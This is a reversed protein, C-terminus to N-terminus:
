AIGNIQCCSARLSFYSWLSKSYYGSIVDARWCFFVANESSYCVFCFYIETNRQCDRNKNTGKCRILGNLIIDVMIAIAVSYNVFFGYQLILRITFNVIM